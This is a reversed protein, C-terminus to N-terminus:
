LTVVSAAERIRKAFSQWGLVADVRAQVAAPDLNLFRVSASCAFLRIVGSARGEELMESLPPLGLKELHDAAVPPAPDLDDWGHRAWADLAAFFLAIEVSEGAAAASAALSTVQFRRDWTGGHALIFLGPM